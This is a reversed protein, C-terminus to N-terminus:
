PARSAHPRASLTARWSRLLNQFDARGAVPDFSSGATRGPSLLAVSLFPGADRSALLGLAGAPPLLSQTALRAAGPVRRPDIARLLELAEDAYAKSRTRREQPGSGSPDKESLPVCHALILAALFRDQDPSAGSAVIARAAVAAPGHESLRLRADALSRYQERLAGRYFQNQPNIKRATELHKVAAELLRAAEVPAKQRLKLWGLNGLAQASRDHYDASGPSDRCLREFRVQSQQWLIEAEKAAEKGGVRLIVAGLSNLTNALESQYAPRAPFDEVLQELLRRAEQHSQLAERPKRRSRLNGFNNHAVALERRYEPKHPFRTRLDDLRRIAEGYCQAAEAEKGLPDFVVAGLNLYVRATEQQYAPEGPQTGELDNLLRIAEEMDQRAGGLDATGARALGRNYHSRALEQRYVAQKPHERALADQLVLARDYCLAADTPRDTTRWLEGKWNHTNALDQRYQESGPHTELLDEQLAIARDFAKQAEATRGLTRYIQGMRTLAQATERRLSPDNEEEAALGEYIQLAKLLFQEQVEDMQPQDGLWREAFHTYMDDVAQRALRSRAEARDRAARLRANYWVGGGLLSVVALLSVAVLAAEAPRRRAWKILREVRGVPRATIPEGDLFRRLDDALAEASVYRKAPAKQLCKLCITELDRPIGAAGAKSPPVVESNQVLSLTEMVHRGRFPPKGTLCEYLIAGLAYVDSHPGVDRPNGVAQEPAMYSPTGLISGSCTNGEGELRKALGFDTVKPIVLSWHGIVLSSSPRDEEAQKTMPGQDNTMQLLINAPKLDRHVIGRLHALHMARALQEVLAAAERPPLPQDALLGDLAGGEVFELALYPCGDQEGVEYVQVINPHQLSAVAEAELQFRALQSPGAHAGALVMKLATLRNLKIHRAKYVVGMGGRGLEGLIEYGPVVPLTGRAAVAALEDMTQGPSGGPREMTQPVQPELTQPADLTAAWDRLNPMDASRVGDFTPPATTGQEAAQIRQHLAPILEPCNSCLEEVTLSEGRRKQEEHRSALADLRTDESM